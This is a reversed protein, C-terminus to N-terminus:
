GAALLSRVSDDAVDLPTKGDKTKAGKDAHLSLLLAVAEEDGAQAFQHLASWRQAPQVSVLAPEAELM